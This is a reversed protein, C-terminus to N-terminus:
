RTRFFESQKVIDLVM